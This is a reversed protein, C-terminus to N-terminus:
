WFIHGIKVFCRKRRFCAHWWTTKLLAIPLIVPPLTPVNWTKFAFTPKSNHVLKKVFFSPIIVRRRRDNQGYRKQFSSSPTCTKTSFTTKDFKAWYTSVIVIYGFFDDDWPHGPQDAFWEPVGSSYKAEDWRGMDDMHFWFNSSM